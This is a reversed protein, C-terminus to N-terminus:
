KSMLEACLREVVAFVFFFNFIQKMKLSNIALVLIVASYIRLTYVRMQTTMFSVAPMGRKFKLFVHFFVTGTFACFTCAVSIAEWLKKRGGVFVAHDCVCVLRLACKLKYM